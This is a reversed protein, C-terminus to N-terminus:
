LCLNRHIKLDRLLKKKGFRTIDMKFYTLIYKDRMFSIRFQEFHIITIIQIM